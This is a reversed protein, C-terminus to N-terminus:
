GSGQRWRGDLPLLEDPESLPDSPVDSKVVARGAGGEAERLEGKGASRGVMSRAAGRGARTRMAELFAVAGATSHWARESVLVEFAHQAGPVEAYAVPSTSVAGLAGFFDRAVEVPVLTDNSGHVIFFPPADPRVWGVPSAEEFVAPHEAFSTKMVARELMRQIGHGSRKPWSRTGTMDYVGYFPVCADVSTDADEFGPQWEAKDPTLGVLATLHGGASGGAVAIFSPDGGYEAIHSRVWAVARKCDVIQDPWTARPSLRYNLAACVWGRSALEAMLPIGQERKDGIIWGGGHIQILVPAHAPPNTKSRIIDLRHRYRGDGWYDINKVRDISRGRVPVALALRRFRFWQPDAPDPLPVIPGGHASTLADAIVGGARHSRRSLAVLGVWDVLAVGAGVWGPWATFAGGLGWAVTALMGIVVIQLSLEGVFWGCAFAPLAM